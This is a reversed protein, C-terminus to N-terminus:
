NTPNIREHFSNCVDFKCLVVVMKRYLTVSIDLAPYTFKEILRGLMVLIELQLVYYLVTISNLVTFSFSMEKKQSFSNWLRSYQKEERRKTHNLYLMQYSGACWWCGQARNWTLTMGTQRAVLVSLYM